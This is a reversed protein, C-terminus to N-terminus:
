FDYRCYPRALNLGVIEYAHNCSVHYSLLVPSDIPLVSKGQILNHIVRKRVLSLDKDEM